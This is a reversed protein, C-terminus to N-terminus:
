FGEAYRVESLVYRRLESRLNEEPVLDVKLPLLDELFDCLECWRSWTWRDVTVLLDIDSLPTQQHRVFSGFLGIKVVGLAQLETAHDRLTALIDDATWVVATSNLM